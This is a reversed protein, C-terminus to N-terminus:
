FNVPEWSGTSGGKLPIVSNPTLTQIVLIHINLLNNCLYSIMCRIITSISNIRLLCETNISKSIDGKNNLIGNSNSITDKIIFLLMTKSIIIMTVMTNNLILINSMVQFGFM